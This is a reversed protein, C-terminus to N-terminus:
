NLPRGRALVAEVARIDVPKIMHADFGAERSRAFDEPQGYGTLAILQIRGSRARIHRALDYGNMDPLGIDVLAAEANFEGLASSRM